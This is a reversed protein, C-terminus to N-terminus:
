WAVNQKVKILYMLKKNMKSCGWGWKGERSENCKEMLFIEFMLFNSITSGVLLSYQELRKATIKLIQTMDKQLHFTHPPPHLRHM